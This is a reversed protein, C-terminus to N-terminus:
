HSKKDMQRPKPHRAPPSTAVQTEKTNRGSKHHQTDTMKGVAERASIKMFDIWDEMEDEQSATSDTDDEFSDQDHKTPHKRRDDRIDTM